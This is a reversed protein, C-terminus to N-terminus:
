QLIGNDQAVDRSRLIEIARSNSYKITWHQANLIMSSLEDGAKADWKHRVVHTPM